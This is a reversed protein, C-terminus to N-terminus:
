TVTLLFDTFHGDQVEGWGSRHGCTWRTMCIPWRTGHWANFLFGGKIEGVIRLEHGAQTIIDMEVRTPFLDGDYQTLKRVSIIPKTEGDIIVWGFKLIDESGVTFNERWIPDFDPDDHAVLLFSLGDDFVGSMWSLPPIARLAESRTEGWSRDRVHTGNVEYRVGRIIVEGETRMVQDFHTENPWMCPPQAATHYVDFFNNRESDEYRTRFKKGPEIMEVQYGASTRYSVLSGSLEDMSMYTRFDCIDASGHYKRMGQAVFVGSSIVNLNPHVWTYLMSHIGAEPVSFGFLQTENLEFSSNKSQYGLHLDEDESRYTGLRREHKVALYHANPTESSSRGSM